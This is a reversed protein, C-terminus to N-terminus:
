EEDSSSTSNPDPAPGYVQYLLCPNHREVEDFGKADMYRRWGEGGEQIVKEEKLREQQKKDIRAKKKVPQSAKVLGNKQEMKAHAKLTSKNPNTMFAGIPLLSQKSAPAMTLSLVTDICIYNYPTTVGPLNVIRYSRPKKVTTTSSQETYNSHIGIHIWDYDSKTCFM